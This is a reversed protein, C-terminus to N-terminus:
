DAKELRDKIMQYIRERNEITMNQLMALDIEKGEIISQQVMELKKNEVAIAMAKGFERIKMQGLRKASDDIPEDEESNLDVFNNHFNVKEVGTKKNLEQLKNQSQRGRTVINQNLKGTQQVFASKLLDLM